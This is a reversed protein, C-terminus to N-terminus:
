IKVCYNFVDNQLVFYWWMSIIILFILIFARLTSDKRLFQWAGFLSFVQYPLAILIVKLPFYFNPEFLVEILPLFFLIFLVIYIYWKRKDENFIYWFGLIIGFYGVLSFLNVAFRIDWFQLYNKFLLTIVVVAKNHFIRIVSLPVGIDNHILDDLYLNLNISSFHIFDKFRKCLFWQQLSIFEIAFVVIVLVKKRM